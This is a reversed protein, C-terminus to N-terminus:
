EKQPQYYYDYRSLIDRTFNWAENYTLGSDEPIIVKVYLGDQLREKLRRLRAHLQTEDLLVFSNRDPAKFLIHYEGDIKSYQVAAVAKGAPSRAPRILKNYKEELELYDSRQRALDLEIGTKEANLAALRDEKERVRAMLEDFKRNFAEIQRRTQETLAALQQTHAQQLHEMEAAKAATEEQLRGLTQEDAAIKAQLASILAVKAELTSRIVRIEDGKLIIEMEKSQLKEERDALADQLKRGAEREADLAERAQQEREMRAALQRALDANKVIVVVMTLMFIMLIVTMIDTFSPWLSIDSIRNRRNQRLDISPGFKHM